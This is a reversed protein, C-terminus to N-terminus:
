GGHAECLAHQVPKERATVGGKYLLVRYFTLAKDRANMYDLSSGMEEYIAQIEDAMINVVQDTTLGDRPKVAEAGQAKTPVLAQAEFEAIAQEDEDIRALRRKGKAVPGSAVSESESSGSNDSGNAGKGGRTAAEIEDYTYCGECKPCEFWEYDDDYHKSISLKAGCVCVLGKEIRKAL